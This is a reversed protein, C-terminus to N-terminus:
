WFHFVLDLGGYVGEEHAQAVDQLRADDEEAELGTHTDGLERQQVDRQDGSPDRDREEKGPLVTAPSDSSGRFSGSRSNM